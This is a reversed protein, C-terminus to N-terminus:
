GCHESGSRMMKVGYMLVSTCILKVTKLFVLFFAIARTDCVLRPSSACIRVVVCFRLLRFSSVRIITPFHASAKNGAKFGPALQAAYLKRTVVFMFVRAPARTPPLDTWNNM